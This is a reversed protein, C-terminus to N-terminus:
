KVNTFEALCKFLLTVFNKEFVEFTFRSNFDSQAQVGMSTITAPSNALEFLKRSLLNPQRANLLFGTRGQDVMEPIAGEFSSVIANGHMMAELIVLPFCDNYTPFVVVDAWNLEVTKERGYKPGLVAVQMKMGRQEVIKTIEERTVDGDSGVIRVEWNTTQPKLLSLAEILDLIGKSKVLNSLFLFRVPRGAFAEKSSVATKKIGNGLAFKKFVPLRSVDDKLGESLSIVSSGKFAWRVLKHKLSPETINRLGKGHMHIVIPYGLTKVIISILADRYLAPGTPSLTFYVLQPRFYCLWFVLKPFFLILTFFKSLSYRGISSITKSLALDIFKTKFAEAMAKSEFLYQNIMSMGHVPPPLQVLFLIKPKMKM